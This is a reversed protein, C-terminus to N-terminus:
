VRERCSARGIEGVVGEESTISIMDVQFGVRRLLDVATLAEIEEFGAALFVATKIEKM